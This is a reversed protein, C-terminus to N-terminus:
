YGCQRHLDCQSHAGFQGGSEGVVGTISYTKFEQSVVSYSRSWSGETATHELKNGDLSISVSDADLTTAGNSVNLTFTPNPVVGVAGDGPSLSSTLAPLNENVTVTGTFYEGSIGDQNGGPVSDIDESPMRWAVTMWDGGGGEKLLSEMYYQNGAVLDVTGSLGGDDLTFNNCCGTQEAVRM